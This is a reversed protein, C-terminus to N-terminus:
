PDGNKATQVIQALFTGGRATLHSKATAEAPEGVSSVLGDRFRGLRCGILVALRKASTMCGIAASLTATLCCCPVRGACREHSCCCITLASTLGPPVLLTLPTSVVMTTPRGACPRYASHTKEAVAGAESSEGADPRM